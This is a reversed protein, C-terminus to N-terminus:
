RDPKLLFGVDQESAHDGMGVIEGSDNIDIASELIWTSNADIMTNLDRQADKEDWLFAHYYDSAAGYEGAIVNCNNLALPQNAVDAALKIPAFKGGHWLFVANPGFSQVLVYGDNNIAVASSMIGDSPAISRIKHGDWLFAGYHGQADNLQGVIHGHANIGRVTGGCCGGLAVSKGRRWSVIRSANQGAIEGSDSIAQAKSPDESLLTLKGGSYKFAYPRASDERKLTGVVDGAQNISPAEATTFGAPLEIERLGDKQTWLVPRGEETTGVIM